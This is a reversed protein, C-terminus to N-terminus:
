ASIHQMCAAPLNMRGGPPRGIFCPFGRASKVPTHFGGSLFFPITKRHAKITDAIRHPIQHTQGVGFGTGDARFVKGASFPLPPMHGKSSPFAWRPPGPSRPVPQFTLGIDDGRGTFGKLDGRDVPHAADLVDPHGGGAFPAVGDDPHIPVPLLVRRHFRRDTVKETGAPVM